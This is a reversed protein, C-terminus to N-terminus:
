FMACLKIIMDRVSSQDVLIVVLGNLSFDNMHHPIGRLLPPPQGLIYKQMCYLLVSSPGTNGPGRRWPEVVVKPQTVVPAALLMNDDSVLSASLDAVKEEEKEETKVEEETAEENKVDVEMKSENEQVNTEEEGDKNEEEKISVNATETEILEMSEEKVSEVEAPPAATEEAEPKATEVPTEMEEPDQKTIVDAEEVASTELSTDMANNKDKFCEPHYVTGEYVMANHLYWGEEEGSDGSQLM